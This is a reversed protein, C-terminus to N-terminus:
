LAKRARLWGVIAVGISALLLAAPAPIASVKTATPQVYEKKLMVNVNDVNLSTALRRRSLRSENLGFSVAYTQGANLVVPQSGATRWTKGTLGTSSSAGYTYVTSDGESIGASL